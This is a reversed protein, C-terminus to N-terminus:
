YIFKKNKFTLDSWLKTQNVEHKVTIFNNNQHINNAVLHHNIINFFNDLFNAVIQTNIIYYNYIVSNINLSVKSVL